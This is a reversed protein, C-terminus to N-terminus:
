SKIKLSRLREKQEQTLRYSEIAKQIAKNRTRTPLVNDELLKLGYGYEKILLEAALWAAAMHVYYQSYDVKRLYYYITEIYPKKVYYALLSVLVYRQSFETDMAFIPPLVSLFEDKHKQICKARFSDCTAWNDILIVCKPLYQVFEDYPLYSVITLKVFTVEYYEDPFAMFDQVYEVYKKALSRLVPTRVGLITQKTFILKKQFAAFQREAYTNLEDLFQSYKM